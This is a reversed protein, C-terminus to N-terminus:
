NFLFRVIIFALAGFGLLRDIAIWGAGSTIFYVLMIAVIVIVVWGCGINGWGGSSNNGGGSGKSSNKFAYFDNLNAM